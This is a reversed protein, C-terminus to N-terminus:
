YLGELLGMLYSRNDRGSSHPFRTVVSLNLLGALPESSVTSDLNLGYDELLLIWARLLYSIKPASVWCKMFPLFTCFYFAM